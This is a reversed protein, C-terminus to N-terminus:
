GKMGSTAIGEVFYKQGFFFLLMLPLVSLFAMAMLENWQINAESDIATRLALSLPYKEVSNIFILSNMFDNYTWMFQFLGASFLAPKLLPLLISTFCKFTSCGDIYASEDLDRPLGRIFQMLMYIFFPYCALIAPVYFPLYTNLWGVESFMMYRPIIIVTNPLMLTGILLAFLPKKFPFRFRSFGYAVLSCSILTFLTVPVVIAFTNLFYQGYTYGGTGKWGEIYADLGFREPLLKLTGFIENNSKFTAFFMWVLPYLMVIGVLIILVYLLAMGGRKKRRM